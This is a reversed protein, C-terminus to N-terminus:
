VFHQLDQLHYYMNVIKKKWPIYDKGFYWKSYEDRLITSLLREPEHVVITERNFNLAM